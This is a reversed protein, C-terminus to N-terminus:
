LTFSLFCLKSTFLMFVYEEEVGGNDDNLKAHSREHATLQIAVESNMRIFFILPIFIYHLSVSSFIIERM